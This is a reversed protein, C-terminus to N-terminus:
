WRRTGLGNRLGICLVPHADKLWFNDQSIKKKDWIASLIDGFVVYKFNVKSCFVYKKSKNVSVFM